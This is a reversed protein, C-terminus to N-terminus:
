GESSNERCVRNKGTRKALYLAEDARRVMADPVNEGPHLVSVGLSITIPLRQGEWVFEEDAVAKRIREAAESAAHALSTGKLLVIFEEGGYRALFDVQQPPRKLRLKSQILKAAKKLVMDGAPHGYTDNISKFNDVDMLIVSLPNKSECSERVAQNLIERFYRIVYLGTLGDRTALDFLRAKERVSLIYGYVMSFFFLTFILVIPQFTYLWINIKWFLMFTFGIWLLSVSVAAIFAMFPRFTVFALAVALGLLALIVSNIQPGVPKIFTGKLFSNLLAAHIELLSTETKLPTLRTQAIQPASVGILCIKNRITEPQIVPQRGTEAAQFSRVLDAYEYTEFGGQDLDTWNIILRGDMNLPLSLLTKQMGPNMEDLAVRLMLHPYMELPNALFPATRRLIGDDDPEAQIHGLGRASQELAPISHLWVPINGEPDLAIPLSHIWFKRPTQFELFVPLYVNQAEQMAQQLEENEYPAEGEKFLLDLVISHAGWQHLYRIMQAHYHWPWPWRGIAELSEEEIKIVVIEPHAQPVPRSRFFLDLVRYEIPELSRFSLLVLFLTVIGLSFLLQFVDPRSFFRTRRTRTFLRNLMPFM